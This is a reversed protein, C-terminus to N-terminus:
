HRLYENQYNRSFSLASSQTTICFSRHSQFTTLMTIPHKCVSFWTFSISLHAALRVKQIVAILRRLLAGDFKPPIQARVFAADSNQIFFFADKIILFRTCM